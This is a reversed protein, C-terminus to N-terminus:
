DAIRLMEKYSRPEVDEPAIELELLATVVQERAAAIEEEQHVIAEIEIFWGLAPIGAIEYTIGPGQFIEVYKEKRYSPYFEIIELFSLFDAMRDVCFEYEKNQEVGEITLKQKCTMTHQGNESRIRLLDTADKERRYYQDSRSLITPQGLKQTLQERIPQPDHLRAKIEVEIAM